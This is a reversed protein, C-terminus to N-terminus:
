GFALYGFVFYVVCPILCLLLLWPSKGLKRVITVWAIILKIAAVINVLPILLLITWLVPNAEDGAVFTIYSGLIPIWAFWANEINLRQFIKWSFFSIIVYSIIGAIIQTGSIESSSSPTNQTLQVFFLPLGVTIALHGSAVFGKIAFMM